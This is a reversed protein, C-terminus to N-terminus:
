NDGARYRFGSGDEYREKAETCLFPPYGVSQIGAKGM